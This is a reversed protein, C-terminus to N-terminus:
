VPITFTIKTGAGERSWINLKGGMMRVREQMSALGIGKPNAM